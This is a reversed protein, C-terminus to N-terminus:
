TGLFVIFGPFGVKITLCRDIWSFAVYLHKSIGGLVKKLATRVGCSVVGKISISMM